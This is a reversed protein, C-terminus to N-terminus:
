VTEILTSLAARALYKLKSGFMIKLDYTWIMVAPKLDATFLLREKCGVPVCKREKAAAEVLVMERGSQHTHQVRQKEDARAQLVVQLLARTDKASHREKLLKTRAVAAPQPLARANLLRRKTTQAHLSSRHLQVTPNVQQVHQARPRKGM